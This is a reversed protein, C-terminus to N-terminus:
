SCPEAGHLMFANIALSGLTPIEAATAIIDVGSGGDFCTTM